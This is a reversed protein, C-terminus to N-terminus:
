VGDESSVKTFDFCIDKRLKWMYGLNLLVLVGSCLSMMIFVLSQDYHAFFWFSFLAYVYFLVQGLKEGCLYSACKLGIAFYSQITTFGALFITVAVMYKAYPIYQELVMPVYDSIQLGAPASHWIGTILVLLMSMTCIFADTTSGLIALRAQQQPCQAKTESQIIAEFGIAIDNSYVGKAAGQHMAILISSGAFGGLPAHGAFASKVVILLVGPLATINLAIVWLCLIMYGVILVPMGVSCVNALRSIGGLGIYAILLMFGIIVWERNLNPWLSHVTDTIVTFQFIEVSYVCLFLASIVALVKGTKGKFAQTLCFMPGGDYGEQRRKVRYKVGLYIEAYKLLMGAIVAIWLWFLAGPGGIVIAAVVGVINGIGIMGGVSAFYLKLPSVGPMDKKSAEILHKITSPMHRLVRFQYFQSRVTLYVGMAILCFFGVYMWYIDDIITLTHFFTKM